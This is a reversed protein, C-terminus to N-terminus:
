EEMAAVGGAGAAAAAAGAADDDDAAADAAADGAIHRHDSTEHLDEMIVNLIAETVRGEKTLLQSRPGWWISSHASNTSVNHEEDVKKGGGPPFHYRADAYRAVAMMPMRVFGGSNKAAAAAAAAWLKQEDPKWLERMRRLAATDIAREDQTSMWRCTIRPSEVDSKSWSMRARVAVSQSPQSQLEKARGSKSATKSTKSKGAAAKKRAPADEESYDADSKDQDDSYSADSEEKDKNSRRSAAATRSSAAPRSTVATNTSQEGAPPAKGRGGRKRKAGVAEAETDEGHGHEDVVIEGIWFPQLPDGTRMVVFQNLRPPGYQTRREVDNRVKFLV